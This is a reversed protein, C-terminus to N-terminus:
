DKMMTENQELVAGNVLGVDKIKKNLDTVDLSCNPKAGPNASEIGDAGRTGLKSPDHPKYMFHADKRESKGGYTQSNKSSNEM